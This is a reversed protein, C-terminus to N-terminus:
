KEDSEGYATIPIINDHKDTRFIVSLKEAQNRLQYNPQSPVHGSIVFSGAFPMAANSVKYDKLRFLANIALFSINRKKIVINEAIHNLDANGTLVTLSSM